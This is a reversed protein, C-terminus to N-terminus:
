KNVIVPNDKLKEIIRDYNDPNHPFKCNMCSKIGSPLIEYNGGCRDGLYHLPCYCFLCNFKDKDAIEHCPFYKCEKNVFFRENNM